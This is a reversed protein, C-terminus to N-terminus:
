RDYISDTFSKLWSTVNAAILNKNTKTLSHVIKDNFHYHGVALVLKEKDQLNFDQSVWKKYYGAEMCLNYWHTLQSENCKELLTKTQIQALEPCINIADLGLKFKERVLDLDLFDGNHEKTLINNRKVVDLQRLFEEKDYQGTNINNKLKTGSQIVMYLPDHWISRLFLDIDIHDYKFIAEETGFELYPLHSSNTCKILEVALGTLIAYTEIDARTKFIDVHIIDLYDSEWILYMIDEYPNRQTGQYFAGHDRCVPIKINRDKVYKYFGEIGKFESLYGGNIDIQRRSPIFGVLTRESETFEMVTDTVIKSVPAVYLKPFKSKNKPSFTKSM